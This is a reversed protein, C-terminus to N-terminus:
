SPRGDRPGFATVAAVDSHEGRVYEDVWAQAQPYGSREVVEACV